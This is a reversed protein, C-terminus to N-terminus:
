PGTRQWMGADLEADLARREQVKRYWNQLVVILAFLIIIVITIACLGTYVGLPGGTSSIYQPHIFVETCGVLGQALIDM